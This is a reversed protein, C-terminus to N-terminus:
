LISWETPGALLTFTQYQVTLAQTAAGDITEAGSGDITVANVSADMKKITLVMGLHGALLPLNVTIAGGAANALINQDDNLVTYPSDANTISTVNQYATTSGSPSPVGSNVGAIQGLDLRGAPSSANFTAWSIGALGGVQLDATTGAVDTAVNVQVNSWTFVRLGNVTNNASSSVSTLIAFANNQVIIGSTTASAIDATTLLLRGGDQLINSSLSGTVMLNSGIFEGVSNTGDNFLPQNMSAFSAASVVIRAKSSFNAFSGAVFRSNQLILNGDPMTISAMDCAQCQVEAAGVLSTNEGGGLEITPITCGFFAAQQGPGVQVAGGSSSDIAIGEFIIPASGARLVITPDTSAPDAPAITAGETYIALPPVLDAGAYCLNFVTATNTRVRFLVNNNDKGWKGNFAGVTFGGTTTVEKLGSDANNAQSVVQLATITTNVTPDARLVLPAQKNQGFSPAAELTIQDPSDIAPFVFGEPLTHDATGALHIVVRSSKSDTWADKIALRVSKYASTPSGGRGTGTDVGTDSNVYINFTRFGAIGQDFKSVNLFSTYIYKESLNPTYTPM